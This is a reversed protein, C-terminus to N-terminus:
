HKGGFTRAPTVFAAGPPLHPETVGKEAAQFAALVDALPEDAEYFDNGTSMNSM